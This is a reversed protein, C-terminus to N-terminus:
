RAHTAEARVSFEYVRLGLRRRDGNGSRDHPVFTQDTTLTLVGGAARLVDPAVGVEWTFDADITWQQVIDAGARLTLTSPRDFYRLSSEGRIVCTIAATADTVRVTAQDSMWRWTRGTAPNYEQEHWGQDFGSVFGPMSQLDFQEVAADVRRHSGDAAEASITLTALAGAGELAGPDLTWTELFFAAKPSVQWARLPRGDLTVDFRVDPGDARGLNRGGVMVVAAEPRRRVAISLGGDSPGRRDLTSMGALEPTLASGRDVFWSPASLELVDVDSPRVGGLLRLPDFPWRYQARIQRSTPDFAALDTRKPDALFHLPPRGDERWYRALAEWERRPSTPLIHTALPEDRLAAKFAYHMALPVSAGDHLHDTAALARALPSGTRSYAILPPVTLGLGAVVTVATGFVLMRSGFAALGRAALYAVIPVLPLAYRTTITEHFALHFAAYPLVMVGLVALAPRSRGLLLAGGVAALGLVGAALWWSEWPDLLTHALAAAVARPAPNTALMEVGSLDADAQFSLAGLYASPGGSVVVM